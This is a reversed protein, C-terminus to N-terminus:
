EGSVSLTARYDDPPTTRSSFPYPQLNVLRIRFGAHSVAARSSDRTHLEYHDRECVL